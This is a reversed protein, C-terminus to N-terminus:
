APDESREAALDAAMLAAIVAHDESGFSSRAIADSAAARAAEPKNQNLKWTSEVASITLRVPAIGRALRAYAVTDMKEVRWAQKPALRTEFADSLRDLHARLMDAPALALTGRIHVAVYNWTPVQDRGLGYWDPSVYADPGSVILLAPRAGDRLAAIIPNSRMLHMELTEREAFVFPVHAAIPSGDAGACTLAGFGRESAFRRAHDEGHRRFAPNQHM